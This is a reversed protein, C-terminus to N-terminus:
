SAQEEESLATMLDNCLREQAPKSLPADQFDTILFYDEVKEGFTAIRAAHVRVRNEFMVRAVTALLGPRDSCILEMQTRQEGGPGFNIETPRLFHRLRGPLPKEVPTPQLSEASLADALRDRIRQLLQERQVPKGGREFVQFTDVVRDDSTNFVRADVINLELQGLVALITAFTGDRNRSYVFVETTGHGGQQRTNIWPLATERARRMEGSQWAVQEASHRLFYGDPLEAWITELEAQSWGADTLLEAAERRTADIWESRRLPNELGRQIAQRASIYLESLLSAKWSNWLKPSTGSIDALTLLYLYDLYVLNGVARAFSNVIDPDSIDQRQATVSMVLHNGVLWCVLNTDAESLRHLRCFRRADDEGLQSHDGGRGKAIDHFIGALLLLEPKQLRAHITSFMPYSQESGAAAINHMYQLVSLTHQDVTYVHFLDFQMRGSVRGFEPLYRGLVEYRHMLSLLEPVNGRGRLLTMFSQQAERSTRFDDDILDLNRRLLRITSARMGRLEPRKQLVLFVGLLSAPRNIFVQDSLAELYGNRSQFETDIIEISQSAEVELFEEDFAQLLRENLRELHMVTRFFTQMFQEVALNQDHEDRFGFQHALERQYDFLLREEPRGAIQHLAWRLRWLYLKGALLSQGEEPELFGVDVLGALSNVGFHRKAVWSLTQIDRMGGPGEKLNPELNFVTDHFRHHRQKQEELKAVFYDRGSWMQDIALRECMQDLLEASGCLLRAEMLNTMVSVDARAQEACDNLSRVSHGVNLKLDWLFTLFRGVPEEYAEMSADTVLVMLDLDSQPHLEGRGYGGVAVLSITQLDACIESWVQRILHDLAASRATLLSSIEAQQEFQQQLQQDVGALWDRYSSIVPQDPLRPTSFDSDTSV